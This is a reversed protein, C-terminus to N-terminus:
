RLAGSCPLISCLLSSCLLSNCPPCFCLLLSCLPGCCSPSYGVRGFCLHLCRPWCCSPGLCLHGDAWFGGDFGYGVGVRCGEGCSHRCGGLRPSGAVLSVTSVPASVPLMAEVGSVGEVVPVGRGRLVEAAAARSPVLGHVVVPAVTPVVPVTMMVLGAADNVVGAGVSVAGATPPPPSVALNPPLLVVREVEVFDADGVDDVPHDTSVM